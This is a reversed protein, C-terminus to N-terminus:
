LEADLGINIASELLYISGATPATGGAVRAQSIAYSRDTLAGPTMGTTSNASFATGPQIWQNLGSTAVIAASPVKRMPKFPVNAGVFNAAASFMAMYSSASLKSLQYYRDCINQEGELSKGALSFPASSSGENLMAQSIDFYDGTGFTISTGMRLKVSINQASAGILLSVTYKKWATPLSGNAIAVSNSATLQYNTSAFAGDNSSNSYGLSLTFTNAGGSLTALAFKLYCSFTLVKGRYKATEALTLGQGVGLRSSNSADGACRMSFRSNGPHEGSTVFAEQTRICAEPASFSGWRDLGYADAFATPLARQAIDFNGNLFINTTDVNDAITNGQNRGDVIEYDTVDTGNKSYLILWCIIKKGPDPLLGGQEITLYAATRQSIGFGYLKHSIKDDRDIQILTLRYADATPVFPTITGTFGDKGTIAGSTLNYFSDGQDYFGFTDRPYQSPKNADIYTFGLPSSRDAGAVVGNIISSKIGIINNASKFPRLRDDYNGFAALLRSNKGPIDRANFDFDSAGTQFGNLPDLVFGCLIVDDDEIAPYEPSVAPTGAIILIECTQQAKLFVTSGPDTPKVIETNQIVLPRLVVLDRRPNTVPKTTAFNGPGTYVLLKGTPSVAVGSSVNFNPSSGTVASIELGSLVAGSLLGEFSGRYMDSHATQWNEFDDRSWGYRFYFNYFNIDDSPM